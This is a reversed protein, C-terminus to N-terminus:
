IHYHIIIFDYKDNHNIQKGHFNDKKSYNVEKYSDLSIEMINKFLYTINYELLRHYEHYITYFINKM